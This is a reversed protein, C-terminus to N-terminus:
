FIPSSSSFVIPVAAACCNSSEVNWSDWEVDPNDTDGGEVDGEVNDEGGVVSAEGAWANDGTGGVDNVVATTDGLTAVGADPLQEMVDGVGVTGNAAGVPACQISKRSDKGRGGSVESFEPIGLM